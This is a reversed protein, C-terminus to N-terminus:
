ADRLRRIAEEPLHDGEQWPAAGRALRYSGSSAEQLLEVDAIQRVAIPRGTAVERSIRGSVKARRGWAERMIEEQGQTLYCAVAKDHVTDYLNFRLGARNSLTQVRGTVTGIASTTAPLGSLKGNGYITYDADPTGFRVYEVTRALNQIENAIRNISPSYHPDERRELVQGLDGYLDVIREIKAPSDAEGHVTITTSGPQLDEVVWEVNENVALAAILRRFFTIGEALQGIDIRGGLEFTLTSKAMERELLQGLVRRFAALVLKVDQESGTIGSNM